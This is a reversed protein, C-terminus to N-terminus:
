VREVEVDLPMGCSLLIQWWYAEDRPFAIIVLKDGEQWRKGRVQQKAFLPALGRDRPSLDNRLCWDEFMVYADTVVYTTM